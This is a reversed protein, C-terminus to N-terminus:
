RGPNRLVKKKRSPAKDKLTRLVLGRKRVDKQSIALGEKVIRSVSAAYIKRNTGKGKRYRDELQKNGKGENPRQIVGMAPAHKMSIKRGKRGKGVGM